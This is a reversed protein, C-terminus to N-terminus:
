ASWKRRNIAHVITRIKVEDPVIGGVAPSSSNNTPQKAVNLFQQSSNHKSTILTIDSKVKDIECKLGRM